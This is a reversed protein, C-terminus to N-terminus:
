TRHARAVTKKTTTASRSRATGTATLREKLLSMQRGLERLKEDDFEKEAVPFFDDEEEGAHHEVSEKLVVAKSKFADDSGNLSKLEKILRKVILHEELSEGVMKRAKEDRLSKCAPYLIREELQAHIELDRGVQDITRKRAAHAGEGANEYEKFLKRVDHASEEALGHGESGYREGGGRDCRRHAWSRGERSELKGAFVQQGNQIGGVRTRLLM